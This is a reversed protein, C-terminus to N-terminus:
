APPWMNWEGNKFSIHVGIQPEMIFDLATAESFKSPGAARAPADKRKRNSVLHKSDIRESLFVAYVKEKYPSIYRKKFMRPVM